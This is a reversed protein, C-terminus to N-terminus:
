HNTVFMKINKIINTFESMDQQKNSMCDTTESVNLQKNYWSNIIVSLNNLVMGAMESVDLQENHWQNNSFM